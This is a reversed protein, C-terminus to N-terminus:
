MSRYTKYSMQFMKFIIFSLLFFPEQRATEEFLCWLVVNLVCQFNSPMKSRSHMNQSLTVSIRTQREHQLLPSYWFFFIASNTLQIFMKLSYHIKLSGYKLIWFPTGLLTIKPSFKVIIYGPRFNGGHSLKLLVRKRFVSSTMHWCFTPIQNLNSCGM